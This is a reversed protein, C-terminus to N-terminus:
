TSLDDDDDQGFEMAGDFIPSGYRREIEAKLEPSADDLPTFGISAQCRPCYWDIVAGGFGWEGIDREAHLGVKCLLPRRLWARFRFWRKM